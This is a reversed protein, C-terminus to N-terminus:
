IHCNVYRWGYRVLLPHVNAWGLESNWFWLTTQPMAYESWARVHPEYWEALSDPTFPEGEFSSLGYAGDSVIVRPTLWTAYLALADAHHLVIGDKVFVVGVDEAFLSETNALIKAAVKRRRLMVDQSM